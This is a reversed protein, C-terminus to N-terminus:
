HVLLEKANALTNVTIEDGALLRALEDLRGKNDLLIMSTQTEKDNSEKMVFFHNHANGAVQPLHTVCIVQTSQALQRLERGVQTATGGSIGVDVEDFILAPTEAKQATIVQIALAIRSLEGGSLVKSFAHKVQGKNTSVLFEIKDAGLQNLQMEDFTVQIDLEGHPMSLTKIRKSIQESLIKAYNVRQQHLKKAAELATQKTSEVEKVLTQLYDQQETLQQYEAQLKQHLQPLEAPQIHHKRALDLQKSLRHELIMMQQPDCELHEAYLHLEQSVENLQITANELMELLVTFKPESLTILDEIRTKAAQVLSLANGEESDSLFQCCAQSLAIVEERNSLRKYELDIQEYEGDQPSFEDLEQLQYYLLQSRMERENQQQQYALYTQKAKQWNKYHTKIQLCLAPDNMYSDLLQQQYDAKLLLQHSHQGHIQILKHGLEKLQAAPVAKGNIYAKSRGDQGVIRRLICEDEEDLHHEKLWALASPTDHLNFQACIDVEKANQRIMSTDARQGLCLGLADIAISKGAGTEGTIATMQAAFDITLEEVIVFNRIILQLLM